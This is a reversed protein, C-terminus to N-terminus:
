KEFRLFCMFPWWHLKWYLGYRFHSFKSHLMCYFRHSRVLYMSNHFHVFHCIRAQHKSSSVFWAWYNQAYSSHFLLWFWCSFSRAERVSIGSPELFKDFIHPVTYKRQNLIYKHCCSLITNYLLTTQKSLLTQSAWFRQMHFRSKKATYIIFTISLQTCDSKLFLHRLWHVVRSFM